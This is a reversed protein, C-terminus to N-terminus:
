LTHNQQKVRKYVYPLVATINIILIYKDCNYDETRSLPNLPM